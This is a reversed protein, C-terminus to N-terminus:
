AKTIGAIMRNKPMNTLWYNYFQDILVNTKLTIKRYLNYFISHFGLNSQNQSLAPFTPLLL